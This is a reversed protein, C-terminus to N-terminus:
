KKKKRKAKQEQKSPPTVVNKGYKHEREMEDLKDRIRKLEEEAKDEESMDKTTKLLLTSISANQEELLDIVDQPIYKNNRIPEIGKLGSISSGRLLNMIITEIKDVETFFNVANNNPFSTTLSSLYKPASGTITFDAYVINNFLNFIILILIKKM